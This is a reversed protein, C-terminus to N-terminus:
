RDVFAHWLYFYTPGRTAAVPKAVVPMRLLVFTLREMLGSIEPAPREFFLLPADVATRRWWRCRSSSGIAPGDEAQPAAAMPARAAGGEQRGRRSRRRMVGSAFPCTMKGHRRVSALESLAEVGQIDVLVAFHAYFLKQGLGVQLDM